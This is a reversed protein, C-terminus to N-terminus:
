RSGWALWGRLAAAADAKPPDLFVLIGRFCLDHEDAVTISSRGPADKTAVAIVRNGAAFEAELMAHAAAPIATCRALLGEPAGKTIIMRQGHDDETLVSVLRREHDFPM